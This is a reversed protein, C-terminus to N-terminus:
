ETAASARQATGETGGVEASACTSTIGGVGTTVEAEPPGERAGVVTEFENIAGGAENKQGQKSHQSEHAQQSPQEPKLVVADAAQTNGGTVHTKEAPKAELTVASLLTTSATTLKSSTAALTPLLNKISAPLKNHMAKQITKTASGLCRAGYGAAFCGLAGALVVTAQTPSVKGGCSTSTKGM